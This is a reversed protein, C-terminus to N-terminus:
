RVVGTVDTFRYLEREGAYVYSREPLQGLGTRNYADFILRFTNVPSLTDPVAIAEGPLHLATIIALKERQEDAAADVWRFGAPDGYLGVPHPGEDAQLVIIPQDDVPQALWADIVDLLAQETFALQRRYNEERARTSALEPPVPSGDPEFVYPEHPLLLHALVFRPSPRDDIAALRRLTDLGHLAHRRARDNEDSAQTGPLVELLDPLLTRDIHVDAFQSPGRATLIADAKTAGATPTWWSGLHLYEYGLDKAISGLHHDNLLPYLLRLDAQAAAPVHEVAEHLYGLSWASALSHVTKPYNAASRAAIQFGREELATLFPEQDWDFRDRLVDARGFRDPIVYLIDREARVTTAALEPAEIRPADPARIASLFVPVLAVLVVTAGAINLSFTAMDIVRDPARRAVLVAAASLMLGLSINLWAALPSLGLLQLATATVTVAIAARVWSRALPRLLLWLVATMAAIWGTIPAVQSLPVLHWNAGWLLAIPWM